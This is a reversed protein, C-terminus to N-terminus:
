TLISNSQGWIIIDSKINNKDLYAKYINYNLYLINIDIIFWMKNFHKISLFHM